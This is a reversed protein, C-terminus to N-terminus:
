QPAPAHRFRLFWGLAALKCAWMLMLAIQFAAVREFGAQGFANIAAGVGWQLFFGGAFITLNFATLARGALHSPFHQALKPQVLSFGSLSICYVAWHLWGAREGQWLVLPLLALGTLMTVLVLPELQLGRRELRPAVVGWLFFAAMMGMNIAFLGSAVQQANAGHVERLWPGIWLTLMAFMAGYGFFGVPAVSLFRKDLLVTGYGKLIARLTPPRPAAPPTAQGAAAGGQGAGNGAAAHEAAANHQWRPIWLLLGLWALLALGTWLWFVGRWGIQPLLWQVPVTSALMGLSGVTLMWANSRVQAAPRFWRRYAAMPAMLGAALGLGLLTRGALMAAFSQATATLVGGALAVLLFVVATRPPGFRDLAMGLPIQMLSFGVFYSGALLGLQADDLAFAATLEPALTAMIARVMTSLFYVLAFVCFVRVTAAPSLYQSSPANM